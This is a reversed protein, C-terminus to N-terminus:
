AYTHIRSIRAHRTVHYYSVHAHPYSNHRQHRGTAARHWFFIVWSLQEDEGLALKALFSFFPGEYCVPTLLVWPQVVVDLSICGEAVEAHCSSMFARKQDTCFSIRSEQTPAKCIPLFCSSGELFVLCAVAM